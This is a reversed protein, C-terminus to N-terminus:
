VNLAVDVKNMTKFKVVDCATYFAQRFSAENALGKGAMDYATGHDPSTRVAPLGATYNVGQGFTINKFPILGQDHYMALIADYKTYRGAGFFGDAPFPGYVLKGKSKFAKMAPIIQQDEEMGLLGGEGAHPNLGLVAIKPKTIGFDNKLAAEMLELKKVIRAETILASVEQLPVHGTVVGVKINEGVMLMLSDGTEFRDALYETHGAFSFNEHQINYKNIPATVLGNILGAKMDATARELSAFAAQGAEQTSEGTTIEVQEEWCNIVNLKRPNLSEGDRAQNFNFNNAKLIKRYYSLVKSSGYIVVTALRLLRSDSFTKIIVEPGIGNIDGITIGIVPKIEKEKNSKDM